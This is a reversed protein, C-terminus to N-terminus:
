PSLHDLSSSFSSHGGAASQLKLTSKSTTNIYIISLDLTKKKVKKRSNSTPNFDEILIIKSNIQGLKNVCKPAKFNLAGM